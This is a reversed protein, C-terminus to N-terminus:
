LEQFEDTINFSHGRDMDAKVQDLNCKADQFMPNLELARSLDREALKYRGPLYYHILKMDLILSVLVTTFKDETTTHWPLTLNGKSPLLIILSPKM